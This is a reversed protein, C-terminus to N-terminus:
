REAIQSNIGVERGYVEIQFVVEFQQRFLYLIVVCAKHKEVHHFQFLRANEANDANKFHCLHYHCVSAVRRMCWVPIPNNKHGDKVTGCQNYRICFCEM